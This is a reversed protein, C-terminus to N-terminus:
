DQPFRSKSRLEKLLYEQGAQNMVAPMYKKDKGSLNGATAGVIVGAIVGIGAGSLSEKLGPFMDDLLYNGTKSPAKGYGIAGGLLAGGLLGIGAGILAKHKGKITIQSVEDFELSTDVGNHSLILTRGKVAILEGKVSAGDKKLIILNAGTKRAAAASTSLLLVLATVLILSMGKKIRKSTKSM